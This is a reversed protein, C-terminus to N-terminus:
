TLNQISVTDLHWNITQGSKGTVVIDMTQTGTNAVLDASPPQSGFDGSSVSYPLGQGNNSTARIVNGGSARRFGAQLNLVQMAGFDSRIAFIRVQFFSARLEGLGVSAVIAPTANTTQVSDFIRTNRRTSPTNQVIRNERAM